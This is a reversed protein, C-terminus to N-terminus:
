GKTMPAQRIGLLHVPQYALDLLAEASLFLTAEERFLVGGASIELEPFWDSLNELNREVLTSPFGPHPM